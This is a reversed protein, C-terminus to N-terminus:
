KSPILLTQGEEITKYINIRNIRSITGISEAINNNPIFRRSINILTDGKKIVYKICNNDSIIPILLIQGESIDTISKLKNETLIIDSAISYPYGVINDQWIGRLTDGKKVEYQVLEESNSVVVSSDGTQPITESFLALIFFSLFILLVILPSNKPANKIILKQRVLHYRESKHRYYRSLKKM